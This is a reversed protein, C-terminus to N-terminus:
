AGHQLYDGVDRVRRQGGEGESRGPHGFWSFCGTGIEEVRQVLDVAIDWDEAAGKRWYDIQKKIDVM